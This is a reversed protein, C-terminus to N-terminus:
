SAPPHDPSLPPLAICPLAPQRPSSQLVNLILTTYVVFSPCLMVQKDSGVITQMRGELMRAMTADDVVSEDGERLRRCPLASV